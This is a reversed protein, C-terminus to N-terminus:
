FSQSLLVYYCALRLRMTFGRQPHSLVILCDGLLAFPRFIYALFWFIFLLIEELEDPIKSQFCHTRQELLKKFGFLVLKMISSGPFRGAWFDIMKQLVFIDQEKRHLSLVWIATHRSIWVPRACFVSTHTNCRAAPFSFVGWSCIGGCQPIGASVCVACVSPFVAKLDAWCPCQAPGPCKLLGERDITHATM